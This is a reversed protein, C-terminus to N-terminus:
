IRREPLHVWHVWKSSVCTPEAKSFICTLQASSLLCSSFLNGRPRRHASQAQAEAGGYGCTPLRARAQFFEQFLHLYSMQQEQPRGLNATILMVQSNALNRAYGM